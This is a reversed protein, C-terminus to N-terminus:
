RAASERGRAPRSYYIPLTRLNVEVKYGWTFFYYRAFSFPLDRAWGQRINEPRPPALTRWLYPFLRPAAFRYRDPYLVSLLKRGRAIRLRKAVLNRYGRPPHLVGLREAYIQRYMGSTYVRNGFENDGGSRLREDFGGLSEFIARRVFLNGTAGFHDNEFYQKVPFAHRRFEHYEAPTRVRSRDIVIPGAVYDASEFASLGDALWTEPVTIDADVFALFEGTSEAVARNRAYYSGRNPRIAVERAGYAAALDGIAGGGGDNAVIVECRTTELTQRTLSELTEGLGAADDYVPIVVSVGGPRM